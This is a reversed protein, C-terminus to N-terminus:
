RRVKLGGTLPKRMAELDQIEKDLEETATKISARAAARLENEKEQRKVTDQGEFTSNAINTNLDEMLGAIIESKKATLSTIGDSVIQLKQNMDTIQNYERKVRIAEMQYAATQNAILMKNQESVGAIIVDLAEARKRDQSSANAVDINLLRDAEKQAAESFTKQLTALAGVGDRRDALADGRATGAQADATQRIQQSKNTIEKVETGADNFLDQRLKATQNRQNMAGAAYKAGSLGLTSGTAGYILGALGEERKSQEILDDNMAKREAMLKTLAASEKDTYGIRGMSEEYREQSAAAPDASTLTKIGTQLDATAEGLPTDAGKDITYNKSEIPASAAPLQSLDPTAMLDPAIINTKEFQQASLNKKASQQDLKQLLALKEERPIDLNQIRDVEAQYDDGFGVNGGPAFGVIGGEALGQMNRAPRGAIGTQAVRQLNRQQQAQKNKLANGVGQAVQNTTLGMVQQERQQKVTLPNTQMSMQIQKVADEKESKLKQLALLDILNKDQQYRRQLLNPNGRFQDVRDQIQRDIRM